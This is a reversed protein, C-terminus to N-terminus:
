FPSLPHPCQKLKQATFEGLQPSLRQKEGGRRHRGGHGRHPHPPKGPNEDAGDEPAPLDTDGPLTFSPDTEAEGPSPFVTNEVPTEASCVSPADSAMAGGAAPLVLAALAVSLIASRIM